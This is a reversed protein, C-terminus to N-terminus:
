GGVTFLKLFVLDCDEDTILFVLFKQLRKSVGDRSDIDQQIIAAM